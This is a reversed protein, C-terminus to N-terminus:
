TVHSAYTKKIELIINKVIQVFFLLMFSVIIKLYIIKVLSRLSGTIAALFVTCSLDQWIINVFINVKQMLNKSKAEVVKTMTRKTATARM